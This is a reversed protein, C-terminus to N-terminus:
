TCKTGTKEHEKKKKKKLEGIVLKEQQLKRVLRSADSGCGFRPWIVAPTLRERQLFVSVKFSSIFPPITALPPIPCTDPPLLSVPALKTLFCTFFHFLHSPPHLSIFSICPFGGANNEGECLCEGQSRKQRNVCMKRM